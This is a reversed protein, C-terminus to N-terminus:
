YAEIQRCTVCVRGKHILTRVQTHSDERAATKKEALLEDNTRRIGAITSRTWRYKKTHTSPYKSYRYAPVYNEQVPIKGM